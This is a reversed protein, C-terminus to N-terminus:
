GCRRGPGAPPRQLQGTLQAPQRQRQLLGGGVDLGGPVAQGAIQCREPLPPRVQQGAALRGPVALRDGGGPRQRELVQLLGRWARHAQQPQQSVARGLGIGSRRSSCGRGPSASWSPASTAGTSTGSSSSWSAASSAIAASRRYESTM